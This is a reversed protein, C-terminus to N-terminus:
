CATCLASMKVVCYICLDNRWQCVTIGREMLLKVVTYLNYTAKTKEMAECVSSLLQDTPTLSYGHQLSEMFLSIASSHNHQGLYMRTLASVTQFFHCQHNCNCFCFIIYVVEKSLQKRQRYLATYIVSTRQSKGKKACEQLVTDWFQFYM